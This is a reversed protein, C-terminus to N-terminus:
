IIAPLLFINKEKLLWRLSSAQPKHRLLGPLVGKEEEEFAWGSKVKVRSIFSKSLKVLKVSFKPKSNKFEERVQPFFYCKSPLKIRSVTCYTFVWNWNKYNRLIRNKSRSTNIEPRIIKRQHDVSQPFNM